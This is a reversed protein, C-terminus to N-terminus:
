SATARVSQAVEGDIFRLVFYEGEFAGEVARMAAIFIDLGAIIPLGHRARVQQSSEKLECAYDSYISQRGVRNSAM